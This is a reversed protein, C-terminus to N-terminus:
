SIVFIRLKCVFVTKKYCQGWTGLQVSVAVEAKWRKVIYLVLYSLPALAGTMGREREREKESEKESRKECVSERGGDTRREGGGEKEKEREGERKGERERGERKREREGEGERVRKRERERERVPSSSLKFARGCRV